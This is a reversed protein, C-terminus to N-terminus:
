KLIMLKRVITKNATTLVCYYIGSKLGEGNLTASYNGSSENEGDVLTGIEQGVQNYIKITVKGPTEISYAISTSSTFPNPYCIMTNVNDHIDNVSLSLVVPPFLIYDIWACDSGISYSIDKEYAWKFTHYGITVPVAVRVWGGGDGSATDKIAGDIYFKLFDFTAESSVKRYFSITDDKSVNLSISLDSTQSDTITGSKASYIGQFPNVNTIIWPATGGQTWSFKTFNGTEWDEDAVGIMLNFPKQVSYPGSSLPDNFSVISGIVASPSVTVSFSANAQGGSKILTGLSANATNVTVSGSNLILHSMANTADAHGINKCSIILNANEGPDLRGNNNGSADDVTISGIVLNPANLVINFNGTWTNSSNDTIVLTFLVSHQDPILNHVTFAYANSQTSTIGNTINGWTQTSDTITVNPDSTRLKTSVGTATTSGVNQLTIDLTINEGFDALGNNNGAADHLVKSSYIVYPGTPNAVTVTGIYPARNQKTAVVDAAGPTTIPSLPVTAVGLSDALAAGYLVGSMSVAVYAYPETNVTFSPSALPILPSYITTLAPPVGFYIMLSPDGMLHYIEWYYLTNSSGSQTVALDGAFVMQDMTAYWDGFHEGHDHFTRDYAGLTNADYAPQVVVSKYGVGWWYDEDWLTENSGGIYGVAGKGSARLLAEGFCVPDDFKNTLCCNGVMLPYKHNNQLNAVDAISFAPDYWGSSSGHATYNAFCVGDSVNQIIQAVSTGSIAYPYSSCTLGHASNYYTSDGYNIQGDGNIPGYSADQGAIMVCKGLFSPDPMTYQEYELTKDIQPQLDAVSEASFRGYYVEPFDDGTYECYYLDSVHTGTTGAFSPVEAVDGVFLVFSPAPDSATGANYLGQLYNKISTTTTGVASNNTYAEIVTFGKKTKWQIFPQLASQFMPDAVIVYKVPYKTMTDRASHVKKYNLLQDDYMSEFYHSYTKKKLDITQVVDAGPFTIEVEIDNYVRITNTVPNYQIPAINLRALRIGRMIGLIDVTVLEDSNFQNASYTTKNFQFEAVQRKPNKWASPQSPILQNSIGYDSLKYYTVTYSVVKIYPVSGIPIEILKRLMPLKPDGIRNSSGYGAINLEIFNGKETKLNQYTLQTLTNSFQLESYTNQIVKLKTEGPKVEINGAYLHLSVTIIMLTIFSLKICLMKMNFATQKLVFVLSVIIKV